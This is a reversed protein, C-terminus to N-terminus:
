QQNLEAFVSTGHSTLALSLRDGVNGLAGCFTGDTASFVGNHDKPKFFIRTGNPSFFNTYGDDRVVFYGAWTMHLGDRTYYLRHEGNISNDYNRPSNDYNSPSNAYNLPSNDYNRLSNDYNSPSNEYNSPSLEYPLSAESIYVIPIDAMAASAAFTFSLVTLVRCIGRAWPGIM